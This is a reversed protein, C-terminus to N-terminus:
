RSELKGDDLVAANGQTGEQQAESWSGRLCPGWRLDGGHWLGDISVFRSADHFLLACGDSDNVYVRSVEAVPRDVDNLVTARNESNAPANWERM